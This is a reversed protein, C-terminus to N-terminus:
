PRTPPVRTLATHTPSMAAATNRIRSMMKMACFRVLTEMWKRPKLPCMDSPNVIRIAATIPRSMAATGPDIRIM